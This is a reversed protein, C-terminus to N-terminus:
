AIVVGAVTGVLAGVLAGSPTTWLPAMPFDGRDTAFGYWSGVFAGAIMGGFTFGIVTLESM